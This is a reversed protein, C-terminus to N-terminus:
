VFLALSCVAQIWREDASEIEIPVVQPETPPTTVEEEVQASDPETVVVAVQQLTVPCLSPCVWM